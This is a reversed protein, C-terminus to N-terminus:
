KCIILEKAYPLSEIWACFEGWDEKLKHNKKQKYELSSSTDLLRIDLIM